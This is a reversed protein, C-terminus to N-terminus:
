FHFILDDIMTMKGDDRVPLALLRVVDHSSHVREDRMELLLPSLAIRRTM